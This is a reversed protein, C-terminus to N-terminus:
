QELDKLKLYYMHANHSCHKPVISLDCQGLLLNKLAQHYTRWISLRNQNIVDAKELQGWLFAAQLESPLYSSRLDVWTYKDM